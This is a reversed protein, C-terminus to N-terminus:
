PSTERKEETHYRWIKQNAESVKLWGQGRKVDILQEVVKAYLPTASQLSFKEVARERCKKRDIFRATHMMKLWDDLTQARYGTIGPEVTDMYGGWSTSVVPTGSFMSEIATGGFPEVYDTPTLTVFANGFFASREDDKLDTIHEVNSPWKFCGYDQGHGAMKIKCNVRSAIECITGLGKDAAMRGMYAIYQDQGAIPNEHFTWDSPNHFQPIVWSYRRDGEKSGHKGWLYHRWADSEFVRYAGFPPRDYGIGTELHIETPFKQLVPWAADGYSHMIVHDQNSLLLNKGIKRLLIESHASWGPTGMAGTQPVGEPKRQFHKDFEVQGLIEEHMDAESTTGFNSYDIVFYGISKLIKILNLTKLSWACPAWNDKSLRGYFPAIVHCLIM